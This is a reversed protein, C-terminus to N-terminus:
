LERSVEGGSHSEKKTNRGEWTIFKQKWNRVPIGKSDIWKGATYYDYFREADVYSNRKNAYEKVEELTPPVFVKQVKEKYIEKKIKTNNIKTNNDEANICMPTDANICMPTDANICMPTDANIRIPPYHKVVRIIRKDIAKTGKKYTMEVSIYNKDKLTNIMRSIHSKTLNFFKAFYNNKAWCGDEGDLSNIEVFLLKESWSLNNDLWIEKPIWVGKFDREAM